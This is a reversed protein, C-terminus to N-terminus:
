PGGVPVLHGISGLEVDESEEGEGDEATLTESSAIRGSIASASFAASIASCWAAPRARLVSSPM